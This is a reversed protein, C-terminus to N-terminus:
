SEHAKDLRQILTLPGKLTERLEWNEILVKIDAAESM